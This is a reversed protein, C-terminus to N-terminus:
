QTPVDDINRSEELVWSPEAAMLTVPRDRLDVVVVYRYVGQEARGIAEVDGENSAIVLRRCLPERKMLEESVLQITAAVSDESVVVLQDRESVPYADKIESESTLVAECRGRPNHAETVEFAQTYGPSPEVEKLQWTEPLPAPWKLLD